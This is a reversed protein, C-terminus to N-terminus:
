RPRKKFITFIGFNGVHGGESKGETEWDPIRYYEFGQIELEAFFALGTDSRTVGLWTITHEDSNATIAAVLPRYLGPNYALDGGLIVDFPGALRGAAEAKNWDYAEVRVVTGESAFAGGGEGYMIKNADANRKLLATHNELDSLVLEAPRLLCSAGLGLLGTGAGLELVRRGKVRSQFFDLRRAMQNLLLTAAPWLGGGVGVGWNVELNLCTGNAFAFNRFEIGKNGSTRLPQNLIALRTTADEDGLMASSM